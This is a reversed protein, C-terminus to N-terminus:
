QHDCKGLATLPMGEDTDTPPKELKLQVIDTYM